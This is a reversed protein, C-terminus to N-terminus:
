THPNVSSPSGPILPQALGRTGLGQLSVLVVLLEWGERM